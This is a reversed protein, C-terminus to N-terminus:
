RKEYEAEMELAEQMHADRLASWYGTEMYYEEFIEANEAFHQNLVIHATGSDLSYLTHPELLRDAGWDDIRDAVAKDIDVVVSFPVRTSFASCDIDMGAVLHLAFPTERTFKYIGANSGGALPMIFGEPISEMLTYAANSLDFGSTDDALYHESLSAGPSCHALFGASFGARAGETVPEGPMAMVLDARPSGQAMCGALYAIGYRSIRFTSIGDPMGDHDSEFLLVHHMDDLGDGEEIALKTYDSSALMMLQPKDLKANKWERIVRRAYEESEPRILSLELGARDAANIVGSLILDNYGNDGTSALSAMMIIDPCPTQTPEERSDSDSCGTAALVFLAAAGCAAYRKLTQTM